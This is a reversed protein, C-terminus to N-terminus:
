TNRPWIQNCAGTYGSLKGQLCIYHHLRVKGELAQDELQCKCLWVLESHLKISNLTFAFKRIFMSAGSASKFPSRELRLLLILCPTSSTVRRIAMM